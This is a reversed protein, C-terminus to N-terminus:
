VVTDEAAEQVLDGVHKGVRALAFRDKSRDDLGPNLGELDAGAHCGDAGAGAHAQTSFFGQSKWRSNGKQGNIWLSFPTKEHKSSYSM